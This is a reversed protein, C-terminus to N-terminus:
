HEKLFQYMKQVVEAQRDIFFYHTIGVGVLVIIQAQPFRKQLRKIAKQQVPIAVENVWTQVRIQTAEDHDEIGPYYDKIPAFVLTSAQISSYDPPILGKRLAHAVHDPTQDTFTGDEAINLTYHLNAELASSWHDHYLNKRLWQRYAAVSQGPEFEPYPVPLGDGVLDSDTPDYNADFYILRDVQQPHRRAFYTMENGALSHGILTVREIDLQKLFQHIDETLIATDYNTEPIDSQGQGRRTLGLVRFHKTFEPAIDDFVHASDGLGPLFLLTEGKGGWDLYQLKVGNVTLFASQHPSTDEFM